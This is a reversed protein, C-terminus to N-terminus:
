SGTNVVPQTGRDSVLVVLLNSVLHARQEQSLNILEKTEMEALAGQVMGLAGEVMLQRAAVVAAAQQRRLMEGAIEPAYALRRLRTDLVEVGAIHLRDQLEAQLTSAVDDANARLSLQGPEYADYPYESAVHRVATEAQIAVFDVYSEVDLTAMATNAVQWNIVAAIEVPNGAADNVKLTDSDLNRVRLSVKERSTFPNIWHFGAQRLTGRYRGLLTAVKAENPAVVVFGCLSVLAAGLIAIGLMVLAASSGQQESTAGAIVLAVGVVVTGFLVLLARYGSFRRIHIESTAVVV